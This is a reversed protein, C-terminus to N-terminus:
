SYVRVNLKAGTFALIEEVVISTGYLGYIDLRFM